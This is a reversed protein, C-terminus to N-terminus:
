LSKNSAQSDSTRNTDICTESENLCPRTCNQRSKVISIKKNWVSVSQSNEVLGRTSCILSPDLCQLRPQFVDGDLNWMVKM